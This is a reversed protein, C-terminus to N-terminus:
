LPLRLGVSARVPVRAAEEVGDQESKQQPQQKQQQQQQPEGQQQALTNGYLALCGCAVASAIARGLKPNM